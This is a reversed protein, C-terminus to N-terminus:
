LEGHRHNVEGAAPLTGAAQEGRGAGVRWPRETLDGGDDRERVRRACAAHLQLHWRHRHYHWRQLETQQRLSYLHGCRDARTACRRRRGFAQDEGQQTSM